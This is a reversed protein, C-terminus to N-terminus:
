LCEASSLEVFYGSGNRILQGPFKRIFELSAMYIYIYKFQLKYKGIGVSSFNWKFNLWIKLVTKKGLNQVFQSECLDWNQVLLQVKIFKSM